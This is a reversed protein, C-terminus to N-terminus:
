FSHSKLPLDLPIVYSFRSGNGPASDIHIKGGLEEIRARINKLGNGSYVKSVDFGIGDDTITFSLENGTSEAQVSITKAKSYKIANNVIEKSVLLLNRRQESSLISGTVAEPFEISYEIGSYELQKNLQERMYSFLNELSKNEPNLSWVIESMSHVLQRSTGAIDDLEQMKMKNKVSESMLTIQTLGAGIDDHMERSIRQREKDLEKQKELEAVKARLTQQAFFRTIFVTLLIFLVTVLFYFWWTKWFPPHIIVEIEYPKSNWQGSQGAAIVKFTYHGHPLNNYRVENLSNSSIWDKDWGKLQYKYRVDAANNYDIGTFRFYLNNKHWPLILQQIYEPALTTDAPEDNVKVQTIQLVPIDTSPKVASPKFWVLGTPSGFYFCGSNGKFFAGTNFEDTPLGDNRTFNTFRLSPFINNKSFDTEVKSLGQNTSIWLVGSDALAGYVFSNLMGDHEDYIKFKETPLHYAILGNSCSIWLLHHSSDYLFSKVNTETFIRRPVENDALSNMIWIGGSQPAIWLKGNPHLWVDAIRVHSPPQMHTVFFGTKNKQLMYLGINTYILWGGRYETMGWMQPNQMSNSPVPLPLVHFKSNGAERIYLQGGMSTFLNGKSDAKVSPVSKGYYMDPAKSLLEVHKLEGSNKNLTYLGKQFTGLWVKSDSEEYISHIFLNNGPVLIEAPFSHFPSAAIETQQLGIIDSGVWLIRNDFNYLCYVPFNGAANVDGNINGKWDFSTNNSKKCYINGLEDGAWLQGFGDNYLRRFFGKGTQEKWNQWSNSFFSKTFSSNHTNIAFIEKEWCAYLTDNSFAVSYFSHGPLHWQWKKSQLDFNFIGKQSAFWFKNKGDYAGNYMFPILNASEDRFAIPYYKLQTTYINFAYLGLASNAMWLLSDKILLPNGFLPSGKTEDTSVNLNKDVYYATFKGTKKHFCHITFDTSFWLREHVDELLDTRIFRGIMGGSRKELSPKYIKMEIGDFRNLGNATGIWLFGQRDKLVSYVTNQSLGEIKKLHFPQSTQAYLHVSLIIFLSSLIIIRM